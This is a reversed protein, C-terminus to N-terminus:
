PLLRWEPSNMTAPVVSYNAANAGSVPYTSFDSVTLPVNGLNLIQADVELPVNPNLQGYSNFNLSGAIGLQALGAPPVSGYTAYLNSCWPLAGPVAPTSGSGLGNSIDVQGNINLSGTM